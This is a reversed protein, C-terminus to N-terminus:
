LGAKASNTSASAYYILNLSSYLLADRYATCKTTYFFGVGRLKNLKYPSSPSLNMTPPM